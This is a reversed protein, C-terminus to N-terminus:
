GAIDASPKVKVAKAALKRLATVRSQIEKPIIYHPEFNNELDIGLKSKPLDRVHGFSSEITYKKGVFNSITRAKTPSEVIVLKKM